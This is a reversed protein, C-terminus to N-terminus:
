KSDKITNNKTDLTDNIKNSNDKKDSKKLPADIQFLGSPRNNFSNTNSSSDNDEECSVLGFLFM